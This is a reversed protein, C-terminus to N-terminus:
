GPTADREALRPLCATLDYGAADTAAVIDELPQTGAMTFAWLMASRTGTRCYAHAPVPLDSLARAFDTIDADTIQGPIVPVSQAAIGHAEAAAAIRAFSPQGDAEGDPRNCIITRIGQKALDAVDEPTIQPSVTLGASLTRADM